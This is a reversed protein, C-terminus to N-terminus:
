PVLKKKMVEQLFIIYPVLGAQHAFVERITINKKIRKKEGNPWSTSFTCRLDLKGEDHRIENIRSLPGM